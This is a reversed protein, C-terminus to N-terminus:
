KKEEVIKQGIKGTLALGILGLSLYTLGGIDCTLGKLTQIGWIVGAEVALLLGITTVPIVMIRLVSVLSDLRFPNKAEPNILEESIEPM